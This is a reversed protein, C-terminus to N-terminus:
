GYNKKTKKHPRIREKLLLKARHLNSKSTGISINLLKSIENHSFDDLEFLTFVLRYRNPLGQVLELLYDLSYDDLNTDIETAVTLEEKISLQKVKTEHYKKIAKNITIRKLWGEFSGKATFQNIKTFIAVFSDQLVDEADKTNKCYKLCLTFLTDKYLNYLEAQAKRNQEKCKYILDIQNL